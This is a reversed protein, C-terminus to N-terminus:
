WRQHNGLASRIKQHPPSPPRAAGEDVALVQIVADELAQALQMALDAILRLPAGGPSGLAGVVHLERPAADALDLEDHLQEQHNASSMKGLNAAAGRELAQGFQHGMAQHPGVGCLAQRLGIHEKSANLMANLVEVVLLRMEQRRSISVQGPDTGAHPQRAIGIGARQQLLQAQGALEHGAFEVRQQMLSAVRTWARLALRADIAVLRQQWHVGFGKQLPHRRGKPLAQLGPHPLRLHGGQLFLASQAQGTQHLPGFGTDFGAIAGFLRRQAKQIPQIRQQAALAVQGQQDLAGLHLTPQEPQQAQCAPGHAVQQAM